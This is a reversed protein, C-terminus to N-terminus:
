QEDSGLQKRGSGMTPGSSLNSGGIQKMFSTLIIAVEVERAGDLDETWNSM